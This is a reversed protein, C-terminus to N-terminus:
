LDFGELLHNATMAFSLRKSGAPRSRHILFDRHPDQHDIRDGWFSMAEGADLSGTTIGALSPADLPDTNGLTSMIQGPTLTDTFVMETEGGSTRGMSAESFSAILQRARVISVPAKDPGCFRKEIHFPRARPKIRGIDFLVAIQVANSSEMQMFSSQLEACQQLYKTPLTRRLPEPAKAASLFPEYLGSISILTEEPLSLIEEAVDRSIAEPQRVAKIGPHSLLSHDSSIAIHRDNPDATYAM